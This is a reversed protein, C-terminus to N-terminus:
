RHGDDTIREFIVQAAKNRCSQAKVRLAQGQREGQERLREVEDNVKVYVEDIVSQTLARLEIAMQRQQAINAEEVASVIERAQRAADQRAEEASQEARRIQELLELTM